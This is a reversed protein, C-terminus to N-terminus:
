HDVLAALLLPEPPPGMFINYYTSTGCGGLSTGCAGLSTGYLDWVLGMSTGYLGWLEIWAVLRRRDLKPMGLISTLM